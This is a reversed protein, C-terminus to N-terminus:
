FFWKNLLKDHPMTAIFDFFCFLIDHYSYQKVLFCGSSINQSFPTRLFKVFKQEGPQSIM